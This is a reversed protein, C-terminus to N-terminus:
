MQWTVELAYTRPSGWGQFGGNGLPLAQDLYKTDSLNKGTLAFLVYSGDKLNWQYAARADIISYADEKVVSSSTAGGVIIFSDQWRFSASLSFDNGGFQTQYVGTISYDYKPARGLDGGGIQVSPCTNPTLDPPFNPFFQPNDQPNCATGAAGNAPFPVRESSINFKDSSNGLYGFTAIASLSDTFDVTLDSEFGYVEADGGNNIITNTGPSRGNTTIISSFQYQEILTYFVAMNLRMRREWLENKSGIEYAKATEPNYALFRPDNGRNSFGGSRFGQSYSAYLTNTDTPRWTASFKGITRDWDENQNVPFGADPTTTNAQMPPDIASPADATYFAGKFDKTDKLWRLGVSLEVRDTVDWNVAGFVAQSTVDEQTQQWSPLPISTQCLVNGLSPNDVYFGAFPAVPPGITSCSVGAPLGFPLQLYQNTGQGHNMTTQYYYVGTVYSVNKVIDGSLRLEETFQQYKADRLTHLQVLPVAATDLTGTGDFDQRTKDQEDVYGTISNLTAFGLDWQVQLDYSDTTLFAHEPFQAWTKWPQKGYILPNQPPLDSRDRIHDYTLTADIADTPQYRLAATYTSYDVNGIGKDGGRTKNDYFGDRMEGMVGLKLALKDELLPVNVRAKGKLASYNGAQISGIADWENMKPKVREVVITGGNTNKGYLVGQPGRNIEVREVDFMDIIQGTNTGQFIGDIIVGVQPSQTKEVDAYGIGRIFIAGMSPGATQQGIFVNPSLGDLDKLTRPAIRGLDRDTFATVAVPVDQISESVRRSTVLVEEVVGASSQDPAPTAGFGQVACASLVAMALFRSVRM